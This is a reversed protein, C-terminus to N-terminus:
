HWGELLHHLPDALWLLAVITIALLGFLGPNAKPFPALLSEVRLRAHSDAFASAHAPAAKQWRALKVIVEAVSEPGAQDAAAQDCAKECLLQHDDILRRSMPQPLPALLMGILIRRLNDLRRQHAKEHTLVTVVDQESCRELLGSSLFIDPRWVGVTFAAVQSDPLEFFGQRRVGVFRLQKLLRQSPLYLQQIKQILRWAVYLAVCLAPWIALNNVPGHPRCLGSHCHEVVLWRAVDPWYLSSVLWVSGVLPVASYLLLLLSAQPARGGIVASRIVPYCLRLLCALAFWLGLLMLSVSAFWEIM